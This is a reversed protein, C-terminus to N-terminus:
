VKETCNLLKNQLNELHWIAMVCLLKVLLGFQGAKAVSVAFSWNSNIKVLWDLHVISFAKLKM